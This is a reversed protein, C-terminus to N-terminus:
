AKRSVLKLSSTPVIAPAKPTLIGSEPVKEHPTTWKVNAAEQGFLLTVELVEGRGGGGEVVDGVMLPEGSAYM